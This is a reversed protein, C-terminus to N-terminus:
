QGIVVFGDKVAAQGQENVVEFPVVALGDDTPQAPWIDITITSPLLVM